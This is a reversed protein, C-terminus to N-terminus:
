IVEELLYWKTPTNRGTLTNRHEGTQNLFYKLNWFNLRFLNWHKLICYAFTTEFFMKAKEAQFEKNLQPKEYNKLTFGKWLAWLCRIQQRHYRRWDPGPYCDSPPMRTARLVDRFMVLARTIVNPPIQMNMVQCKTNSSQHRLHGRTRLPVSLFVTEWTGALHVQGTLDASLARCLEM